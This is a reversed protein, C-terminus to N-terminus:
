ENEARVRKAQKLEKEGGGGESDRSTCCVQSRIIQLELGVLSLYLCGNKSACLPLKSM